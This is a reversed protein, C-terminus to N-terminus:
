SVLANGLDFLSQVLFIDIFYLAVLVVLPTFDFGMSRHSRFIPIYRKVLNLVPDTLNELLIILQHNRNVPIWSLIVRIILLWYYVNIAIELIKAIAILLNGIIFM